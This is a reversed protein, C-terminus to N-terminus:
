RHMYVMRMVKSWKSRLLVREIMFAKRCPVDIKRKLLELWAIESNIEEKSRGSHLRLLFTGEKNTEIVFTCTDSRQIFRIQTWDLDFHRLAMLAAQKYNNRM